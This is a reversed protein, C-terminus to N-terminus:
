EDVGETIISVIQVESPLEFKERDIVISDFHPELFERITQEQNESVLIEQFLKKFNKQPTKDLGSVLIEIEKEDLLYESALCSVYANFLRGIIESDDEHLIDGIVDTAKAVVAGGVLGGALGVVTGVGPSVATGTAGAVKAAAIGAALAGGGGGIMSGALVTINKLYQSTSIKSSVLNYTEPISFAAFTIASTLVNTRLIKALQNTAAIGHIATKGSLM